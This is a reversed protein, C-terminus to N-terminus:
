GGNAQKGMRGLGKSLLVISQNDAKRELKTNSPSRSFACQAGDGLQDTCVSVLVAGLVLGLM